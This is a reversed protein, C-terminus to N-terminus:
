TMSSPPSVSFTPPCEAANAVVLRGSTGEGLYFIRHGSRIAYAVIESVESPQPPTKNIKQPIQMDEEDMAQVIELSSMKDPNM